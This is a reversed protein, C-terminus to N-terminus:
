AQYKKRFEMPSLGNVKKFLRCFNSNDSFGCKEVIEGVSLSSNALYSKASAMRCSQLYRMVSLGTIEKFLHSLSSTSINFEKALSELTCAQSPDSELKQQINYIIKANQGDYTNAMPLKRFILILLEQILLQLMDDVLPEQKQYEDIIRCFLREFEAYDSSVDISNQFDAPRNSLLSFFRSEISSVLPDIQLVYREYQESRISLAHDEHRSFLVISRSNGIIERGSVFFRVQGTRILIIQHCDHFHPQKEACINSYYAKQLLSSM